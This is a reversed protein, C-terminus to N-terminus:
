IEPSQWNDQQQFGTAKATEFTIGGESHDSKAMNLYFSCVVGHASWPLGVMASLWPLSATFGKWICWGALILGGLTVIWLLVRIDLVLRKSFEPQKM